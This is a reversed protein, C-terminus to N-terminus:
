HRSHIRATFISLIRLTLHRTPTRTATTTKLTKTDTHTHKEFTLMNVLLSVVLVANTADFKLDLWRRDFDYMDAPCSSPPVITWCRLFTQKEAVYQIISLVDTGHNRAHSQHFLYHTHQECGLLTILTTRHVHTSASHSYPIAREDCTAIVDSVGSEACRGLSNHIGNTRM